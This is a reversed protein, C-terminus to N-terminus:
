AGKGDSAPAKPAPIGYTEPDAGVGTKWSEAIADACGLGRGAGTVVAVKGSLDM